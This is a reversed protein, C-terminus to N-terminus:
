NRARTPCRGSANPSFRLRHALVEDAIEILPRGHAFAYARLRVLAEGVGVGLQASIMGTAQHVAGDVRVGDDLLVGLTIQACVDMDARVSETLVTRSRSYLGLVGVRVAGALLPLALVSRAGAATAPPAFVPWARYGSRGSLDSTEVAEGDRLADVAPGEGLLFHLRELREAIADTAHALDMHGYGRSVWAGSMGARIVSAGSIAALSLPSDSIGAYEALWEWVRLARNDVVVSSEPRNYSTLGTGM